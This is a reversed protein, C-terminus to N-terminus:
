LPTKKQQCHRWEAETFHIVTFFWRVGSVVQGSSVWTVEVKERCVNEGADAFLMWLFTVRVSTSIEQHWVPDWDELIMINM